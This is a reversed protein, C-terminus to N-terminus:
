SNLYNVQAQYDPAGSATTMGALKHNSIMQDLSRNISDQAAQLESVYQLAM